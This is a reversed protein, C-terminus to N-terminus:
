SRPQPRLIRPSPILMPVTRQYRRYGDGFDAALDREELRTAVVIWVTWLVNFLLQDTTLRPSSWILLLMFLYLPHRVYRYAGRAVLDMSPGPEGRAAAKLVLTGFPDFENLSRVGWVFGAFAVGVIAFSVFRVPGEVRFIYRSTPQWLLVLAGLVVGSAISYVAPQYTAPMHAFRRRVGRRIMGSHQAFFVLCLLADWTLRGAESSVIDVRLPAGFVLFWTFLVLSGGGLGLSLAMVLRPALTTM